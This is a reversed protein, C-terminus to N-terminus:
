NSGQILSNIKDFDPNTIYHPLPAGKPARFKTLYVPDPGIRMCFQIEEVTSEVVKGSKPLKKKVKRKEKTIFTNLVYDCAHALWGSPGPTLASAISPMLGLSFSDGLEDNDADFKREQAAIIVHCGTVDALNLLERMKEKMGASVSGWQQQSAVGWSLQAPVEDIGLIYQLMMEQYQTAHDLVVTRYKGKAAQDACLDSLEDPAELKVAVVGPVNHISRTGANCDMLLMPKPWSAIATTKGTGSRGYMNIKMGENGLQIPGVRDLVGGPKKAAPKQAAKPPRQKIAKPPM